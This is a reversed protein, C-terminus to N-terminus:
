VGDQVEKDLFNPGGRLSGPRSGTKGDQLGQPPFVPDEGCGQGGWGAEAM